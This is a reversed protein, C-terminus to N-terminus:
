LIVATNPYLPNFLSSTSSAPNPSIIATLPITSALMPSVIASAALGSAKGNTSISSGVSLM